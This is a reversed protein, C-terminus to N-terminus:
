YKYFIRNWINRNFDCTNIESRFRNTREQVIRATKMLWPKDRYTGRRWGGNGDHYALYLNYADNKRIGTDRATRDLYWGMFDASDSFSSRSTFFGKDNQQKYEDWTGDLAQSYGRASSKYDNFFFFKKGAIPRAKHDFASEQYMIALIVPSEIGWDKEVFHLTRNWGKNEKLIYCANGIRDPRKEELVMACGSLQISAIAILITKLTKHMM